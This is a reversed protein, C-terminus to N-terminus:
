EADVEMVVADYEWVRLACTPQEARRGASRTKADPSAFSAGVSGGRTMKKDDRNPLHLFEDDRAVDDAGSRFRRAGSVSVARGANPNGGNRCESGDGWSAHPHFAWDSVADKAGFWAAAECGNRLDFARLVGDTGGSVLHRGSPEVDFGIKQNTASSNRKM